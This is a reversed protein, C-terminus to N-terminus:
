AGIPMPEPMQPSIAARSRSPSFVSITPTTAAAAGATASDTSAPRGTGVLEARVNASPM